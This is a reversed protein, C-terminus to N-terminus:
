SRNTDVEVVRWDTILRVPDIIHMSNTKMSNWTGDTKSDLFLKSYPVTDEPHVNCM